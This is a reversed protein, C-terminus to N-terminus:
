RSPHHGPLDLEILEDSSYGVIECLARNVRVFRGDLAVLAMGIPAEDITLRFREESEEPQPSSASGSASTAPSRRGAATQCSTRCQGRGARVKWGEAKADMGRHESAGPVLLDARKEKELRAADEVPIIDFISKGILEDPDYGLLRCATKKLTRSAPM